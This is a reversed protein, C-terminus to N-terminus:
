AKVGTSASGSPSWAAAAANSGHTPSVTMVPNSIVMSVVPGVTTGIVWDTRGGSNERPNANSSGISGALM